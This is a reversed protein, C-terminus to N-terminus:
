DSLHKGDPRMGTRLIFGLSDVCPIRLIWVFRITVMSMVQTLWSNMRRTGFGNGDHIGWQIQNSSITCDTIRIGKLKWAALPSKTSELEKLYEVNIWFGALMSLKM